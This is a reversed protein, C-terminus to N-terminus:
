RLVRSDIITTRYRAPHISSLTQLSYWLCLLALLPCALAYHQVRFRLQPGEHAKLCRGQALSPRISSTCIRCRRGENSSYLIVVATVLRRGSYCMNYLKYECRDQQKRQSCFIGVVSGQLSRDSVCRAVKSTILASLTAQPSSAVRKLSGPQM